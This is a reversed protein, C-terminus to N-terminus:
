RRGRSRSRRGFSGACMLFSFSAPRKFAGNISGGHEIRRLGTADMECMLGCGWWTNENKPDPFVAPVNYMRDLSKQSLLRGPEALAVTWRHLDGVTSYMAGAGLPFGMDVYSANQIKGDELEYGSARHKLLKSSVEVGTDNLGLPELVEKRLVDVWGEGSVTEILVTLVQYNSNSYAVKTGPEFEFPLDKFYALTDVPAAHLKRAIASEYEPLDTCNPLGSQHTLLLFATLIDGKDAPFVPSSLYTSMPADLDLKGQEVLRLVAAATFQKTVSGIRFKTDITNPVDWERNALGYAKSFLVEQDDRGSGKAVLVAGSYHRKQAHAEIYAECAQQFTTKTM